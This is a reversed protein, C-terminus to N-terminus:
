VRSSLRQKTGSASADRSQPRQFSSMQVAGKSGGFDFSSGTSLADGNLQVEPSSPGLPRAVALTGDDLSIQQERSQKLKLDPVTYVPENNAQRINAQRQLPRTNVERGRFRFDYEGPDDQPGLPVARERMEVPQRVSDPFRTESIKRNQAASRTDAPGVRRKEGWDCCGAFYLIIVVVIFILLLGASVMGGIFWPNQYWVM